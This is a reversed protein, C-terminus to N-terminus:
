ELEALDRPITSRTPQSTSFNLKKKKDEYVPSNLSTSSHARKTPKDKMKSKRVLNKKTIVIPSVTNCNSM